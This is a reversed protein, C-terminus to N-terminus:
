SRPPTDARLRSPELGFYRGDCTLAPRSAGTGRPDIGYWDYTPGGGPAPRVRRVAGDLHRESGPGGPNTFVVGRYPRPHAAGPLGGAQHDPRDPRRPRAPGDLDRVQGQGPAPEPRRLPGLAIAPRRGASGVTRRRRGPAVARHRPVVTALTAALLAPSWCGGVDEDVHDGIM